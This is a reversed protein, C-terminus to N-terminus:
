LALDLSQEPGAPSIDYVTFTIINIENVTWTSEIYM